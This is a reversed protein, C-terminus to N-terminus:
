SATMQYVVTKKIIHYEVEGLNQDESIKRGRAKNWQEIITSEERFWTSWQLQSDSELFM